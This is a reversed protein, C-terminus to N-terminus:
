KESSWIKKQESALVNYNPRITRSKSNNQQQQKDNYKDRIWTVSKFRFHPYMQITTMNHDNGPVNVTIRIKDVNCPILISVM